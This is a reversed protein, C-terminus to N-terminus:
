SAIRRRSHLVRGFGMRGTMLSEFWSREVLVPGDHADVVVCRLTGDRRFHADVVSLAADAAVIVADVALRGIAM